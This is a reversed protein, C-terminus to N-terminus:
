SNDIESLSPKIYDFIKRCAKDAKSQEFNIYILTTKHVDDHHGLIKAITENPIDLEAALSAITHRAYYSTCNPIIESMTTNLKMIFSKYSKRHEGWELLKERGRYLEIIAIAEPELKVSMLKGTKSRTYELRGNVIQDPTANLLDVGNIGSLYFMLMFCDIYKRQYAKCNITLLQQMQERTLNRKRTEEDHLKFKRFPYFTTIEDDIAANFVARINRFHINRANVSPSTKSLYKDFDRMWEKTIDDFGYVKVKSDFKLMHELTAKYIAQTREAKRSNMYAKFRALFMNSEDVKPDLIDMIVNKVQIITLGKLKGQIALERITNDIETKRNELYSNLHKKNPHDIVKLKIKDWQELFIRVGMSIYTARGQQTLCLKLPFTSDANQNRTDLWFKTTIM